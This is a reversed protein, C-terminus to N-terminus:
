CSVSGASFTCDTGVLTRLEDIVVDTTSMPAGGGNTAWNCAGRITIDVPAGRLYGFRLVIARGTDNTGNCVLDVPALGNMTVRWHSPDGAAFAALAGTTADRADSGHYRCIAVSSPRGPVLPQQRATTAPGDRPVTAPCGDVRLNTAGPAARFSRLIAAGVRGDVGLSVTMQLSHVGRAIEDPEDPPANCTECATVTASDTPSTVGDVPGPAPCSPFFSPSGVETVDSARSRGCGAFAGALDRVSWDPPQQWEVGHWSVTRWTATDIALDTRRAIAAASPALTDIVREVLASDGVHTEIDIGMSLITFGGIGAPTSRPYLPFLEIGHVQQPPAEPRRPAPRAAIEIWTAGPENPSCFSASQDFAIFIRRSGQGNTLPACSVEWSRTISATPPVWLRADGFDVPVWSNAVGAGLSAALQEDIPKPKPKPNQQTAPTTTHLLPTHHGTASAAIAGIALAVALLSSLAVTMTRRRRVARGRAMVADLDATRLSAAEVLRQGSDRLQDLVDPM